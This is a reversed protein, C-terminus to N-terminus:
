RQEQGKQTLTWLIATRPFAMSGLGAHTIAVLKRDYLAELTALSAGLGYASYERGPQMAILVERQKPSLKM